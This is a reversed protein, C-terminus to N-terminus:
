ELNKKLKLMSAITCPYSFQSNGLLLLVSSLSPTHLDKGLSVINDIYVHSSSTVQCLVIKFLHTWFTVTLTPPLFPQKTPSKPLFPLLHCPHFVRPSIPNLLPRPLLTIYLITGREGSLSRPQQRPWWTPKTPPMCTKDEGIPYRPPTPHWAQGGM